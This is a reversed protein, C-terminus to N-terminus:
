IIEERFNADFGVTLKNDLPKIKIILKFSMKCGLCNQVKLGYPHNNDTVLGRTKYIDQGEIKKAKRKTFFEDFPINQPSDVKKGDVWLDIIDFREIKCPIDFGSQEWKEFSYSKGGVKVLLSFAVTENAKLILNSEYTLLGDAGYNSLIVKAKQEKKKGSSSGGSAGSGNGIGEPEKGYGSPPMLKEGLKKQLITNGGELTVAKTQKFEETLQKKIASCIQKFPKKSKLFPFDDDNIDNWEKHNAEESKRFYAGLNEGNFVADDNLVFVGILYKDDDVTYEGFKSNQYNVVMGPKRIYFLLGKDDSDYPTDTLLKPSPWNIPPDMSIEGRDFVKYYFKGLSENGIKSSKVDIIKIDLTKGNYLEQLKLFFEKPEIKKGNVSVRLQKGKFEDNFLRAFYWRQLSVELSTEFNSTWFCSDSEDGNEINNVMKEKDIFPIIVITGTRDDEYPELGFIALFEKIEEEDYIPVSKEDIINGFYAIGSSNKGLLCDNFKENQILAGALKHIYQGNEFTRSYFLCIGIGYRYYISKGIGHSGGSFSGTKKNMVDYVLNYLNNPEGNNCEEPKGLLGCTNSDSISLFDYENDQYKHKIEDGIEEFRIAFDNLSFKGTKFLIRGFDKDDLIADASNQISERVLLDIPPTYNDQILELVKSGTLIMPGKKLKCIKLKMQREMREM